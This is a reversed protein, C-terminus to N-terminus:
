SRGCCPGISGPSPNMRPRPPEPESHPPLSWGGPEAHSAGDGPPTEDLTSPDGPRWPTFEQWAEQDYGNGVEHYGGGTAEPRGSM